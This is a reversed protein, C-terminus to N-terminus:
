KGGKGFIIVPITRFLLLLDLSPSLSNVYYLDLLISDAFSVSSRATVQWIGTCGPKVITRHKQWDEYHEYEYPLCPRPGVISMDGKIVNFLQPLEDLSTKRLFKGISTVRSNNIIKTSGNNQTENNKMYDIMMKKRVEDEGHIVKMSRFKYFEFPKGNRGIRSQRFIVPGKSSFRIALIIVLFLPILVILGIISIILDFARKFRLALDNKFYRPFIGILPIDGYKEIFIKQQITKFLESAIKIEVGFKVCYDLLDFLQQHNSTDSAIIIEEVRNKKIIHGLQDHKGIVKLGNYIETGELVDDEVFGIINLGLSNNSMFRSALFRGTKGGGVIIVRKPFYKHKLKIYVKGLVKIRFLSIFFVSSLIFFTVIFLSSVMLFININLLISIFITFFIACCIITISSKIIRILQKKQSIIITHTYLENLNFIYISLLSLLVFRLLFIVLNFKYYSIQNHFDAFYISLLYSFLLILFDTTTYLYKYKPINIIRM